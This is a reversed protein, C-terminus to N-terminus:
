RPRVDQVTYDVPVQFLSADPEVRMVNRLSYITEGYRPDVRRSFVVVRLEDSYWRESVVDIPHLNGVAGAPITAITRTGNVRIGEYEKEGLPETRADLPAAQAPAGPGKEIAGRANATGSQPPRSRTAVKRGSDLSYHVRTVPDSITVMRTDGRPVVPGVATLPQERRVRGRSDRAVSGMTRREIRNGDPLEQVVENVIDASYPQNEIAAGMELPEVMFMGVDLDAPLPVVTGPAPRDQRPLMVGPQGQAGASTALATTLILAGIVADHRV